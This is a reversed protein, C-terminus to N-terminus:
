VLSVKPPLFLTSSISLMAPPKPGGAAECERPPHAHAAGSEDLAAFHASLHSACGHTCAGEPAPTSADAKAQVCTREHEMEAVVASAYGGSMVLLWGALL